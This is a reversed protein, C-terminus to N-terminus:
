SKLYDMVKKAYSENIKSIESPNPTVGPTRVPEKGELANLANDVAMWTMRLRCETTASGIHPALLVNDMTKLPHELPLPEPDTVDLCAAKIQKDKLATVLANTNVVGGRAINILSATPKMIKFQETSILGKTSSTLPVILFIFDSDRLLDHLSSCYQADGAYKEEKESLRRRNHYAISMRFAKCMRAVECGIAGLGVIGVNKGCLDQGMFAHPSRKSPTDDKSRCFLDAQALHRASSIMMAFALEATTTSLVGPTHGVKIGKKKLAEVEIHDVGTGINSVVKCAPFNQVFKEDIHFHGFNIIGVVEKSKESKMAKKYDLLEFHKSALEEGGEPLGGSSIVAMVPLKTSGSAM